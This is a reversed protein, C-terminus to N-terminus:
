NVDQELTIYTQVVQSWYFRRLYIISAALVFVVILSFFCNVFKFCFAIAVPDKVYDFISVQKGSWFTQVAFVHVKRNYFGFRREFIIQM